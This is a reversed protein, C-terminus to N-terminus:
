GDPPSEVISCAVESTKQSTLIPGHASSLLNANHYFNTEMVISRKEWSLDALMSESSGSRYLRASDVKTHEYRQLANLIVAVLRESRLLTALTLSGYYLM